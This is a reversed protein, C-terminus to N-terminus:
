PKQKRVPRVGKVRRPLGRQVRMRQTINFLKDRVQQETIYRCLATVASWKAPIM